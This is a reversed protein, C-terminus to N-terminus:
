RVFYAGRAGRGAIVGKSYALFQVYWIRWPMCGTLIGDSILQSIRAQSLGLVRAFEAQTCHDTKPWQKPFEKHHPYLLLTQLFTSLFFSEEETLNEWDIGDLESEDFLILARIEPRKKRRM